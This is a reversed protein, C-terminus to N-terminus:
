SFEHLNVGWVLGAAVSAVTLHYNNRIDAAKNTTRLQMQIKQEARETLMVDAM